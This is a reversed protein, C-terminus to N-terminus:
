WHAPVPGHEESLTQHRILEHANRPELWIALEDLTNGRRREAEASGSGVSGGSRRETNRLRAVVRHKGVQLALGLGEDGTRAQRWQGDRNPGAGGRRGDLLHVGSNISTNTGMNISIMFIIKM